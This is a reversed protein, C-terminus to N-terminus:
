EETESAKAKKDAWWAISAERLKQKHEDSKKHRSMKRRTEDSKPKGIRSAASKAKAEPTYLWPTPVGKRSESMKRRHDESKPRGRWYSATKEIQEPTKKVGLSNKNGMLSASLKARSEASMVRGTFKESMAKKWEETHKRGSPGDGGATINCLDAGDNKWFAIRSVELDFAARETLGEAIIRVDVVLGLSSLKETIFKHWRNRGRRMDHARQDYGKGVYFCEGRDQRWHEYVYFVPDTSAAERVPPFERKEGKRAKNRAILDQRMREKEAPDRNLNAQRTKEARAAKQEPTLSAQLQRMQECFEPTRKKGTNALRRKEIEEPRQKRGLSAKRSKEAHEPSLKRGRHAASIKANHEPTNKQGKRGKM